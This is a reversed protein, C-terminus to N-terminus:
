MKSSIMLSYYNGDASRRLKVLLPKLEKLLAHMKSIYDYYLQATNFYSLNTIMDIRETVEGDFHADVKIRIQKAFTIHVNIFASFEKKAFILNGIEDKDDINSKLIKVIENLLRNVTKSHEYLITYLHRAFARWDWEENALIMHSGYTYIDLLILYIDSVKNSLASLSNYETIAKKCIEKQVTTIDEHYIVDLKKVREANSSIVAILDDIAKILDAQIANKTEQQKCVFVSDHFEVHKEKDQSTYKFVM